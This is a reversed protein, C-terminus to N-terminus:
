KLFTRHFWVGMAVLAVVAIGFGVMVATDFGSWPHACTAHACAGAVVPAGTM